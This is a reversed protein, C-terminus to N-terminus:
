HGDFSVVAEGVDGAAFFRVDADSADGADGAGCGFLPLPLSQLLVSFSDYGPKTHM